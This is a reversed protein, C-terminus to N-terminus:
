SRPTRTAPTSRPNTVRAADPVGEAVEDDRLQGRLWLTREVMVRFVAIMATEIAEGAEGELVRLARAIAEFTALGGVHHESRLRYQTRGAEPLIVCPVAALGPVRRRMKNAQRWTGDPVILVVPRESNAYTEISVADPAPYLLLPQEDAGVSPLAAPRGSVGVVEISSGPLCRTALRGTNTPKRMEKDHIMLALRTRTELRPILACICLTEHMRCSECRDLNHRRSM